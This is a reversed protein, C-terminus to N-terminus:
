SSFLPAPLAPHLLGALEMRAALRPRIRGSAAHDAARAILPAVARVAAVAEDGGCVGLRVATQAQGLCAAHAHAACATRADIGSRGALWGTAAARHCARPRYGSLELLRRGARRSEERQAAVVVFRDLLADADWPTSARTARALAPLELPALQDEVLGRLWTDVDHADRLWGHRAAAEWGNSGTFAGTPLGSDVLLLLDLLARSDM